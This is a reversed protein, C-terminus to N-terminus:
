QQLPEKSSVKNLEFDYFTGSLEEGNLDKLKYLTPKGLKIEDVLFIEDTWIAKYRKSFVSKETTLRVFDGKKYKPNDIQTSIHRAYINNWVLSSNEETVESPRMGIVVNYSNNISSVIEDIVDIWKKTNRSTFYRYLKSKIIRIYIEAFVSKLPSSTSYLKVGHKEL